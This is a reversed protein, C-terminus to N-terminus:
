KRLEYFDKKIDDLSKLITTNLNHMRTETNLREDEFRDKLKDQEQELKDIRKNVNDTDTVLRKHANSLLYSLLGIMMTTLLGIWSALSIGLETLLVILLTLEM